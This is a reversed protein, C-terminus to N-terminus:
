LRERQSELLSDCDQDRTPDGLPPVRGGLALVRALGCCPTSDTRVETGGAGFTSVAPRISVVHQPRRRRPPAAPSSSESGSGLPASTM